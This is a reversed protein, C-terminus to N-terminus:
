KGGQRRALARRGAEQEAATRASVAPAAPKRQRTRKTPQPDTTPQPDPNTVNEEDDTVEFTVPDQVPDPNTTVDDTTM